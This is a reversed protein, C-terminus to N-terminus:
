AENRKSGDVTRSAPSGGDRPASPEDPFIPGEYFLALIDDPLPADFDDPITFKGEAVGLLRPPKTKAAEDVVPLLRAVAQGREALVVDEGGRVREILGPLDVAAESIEVQSM